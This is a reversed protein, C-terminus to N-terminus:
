DSWEWRWQIYRMLSGETAHDHLAKFYQGNITTDGVHLQVPNIPLHIMQKTCKESQSCFVVALIDMDVNLQAQLPLEKYPKDKDQHGKVHEFEDNFKSENLLAVIQAIIGWDSALINFPYNYPYDKQQQIITIVSANNLYIWFSLCTNNQVYENAYYLFLLVSLIGYAESQFLSTQGFVPGAHQILTHGQMTYFKWGFSMSDSGSLGDTAILFNGQRLEM